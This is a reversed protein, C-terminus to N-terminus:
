LLTTLIKVFVYKYSVILEFLLHIKNDLVINFVIGQISPLANTIEDLFVIHFRDPEKECKEELKKLWTPKVDIM